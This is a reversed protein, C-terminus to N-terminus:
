SFYYTASKLSKVYDKLQEIIKESDNDNNAVIDVLASGVIAGNAGERIISFVDDPTSVGFGVALNVSSNISNRARSIISKVSIDFDTKSGTVGYLSVLYLFGSTLSSIQKLRNVSTAPTALFVTDM